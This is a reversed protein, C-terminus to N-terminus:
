QWQYSVEWQFPLAKEATLTISKAEIDVKSESALVKEGKDLKMEVPAGKDSEAWFKVVELTVDDYDFGVRVSDGFTVKTKHVIM